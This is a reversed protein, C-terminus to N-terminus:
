AWLVSSAGSLRGPMPSFASDKWSRRFDTRRVVPIRPVSLCPWWTLVPERHYATVMTVPKRVQPEQM